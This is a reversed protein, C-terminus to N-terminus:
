LTEVGFTHKGYNPLTKLIVTDDEVTFHM